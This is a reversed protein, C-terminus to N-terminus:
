QSEQERVSISKIKDGKAISNVVDMGNIVGGFISYQGDLSSQPALTIYFQCSATDINKPFHAMAVVGAVNHKLSPSTELALLRVQGNPEIYVGSGNGHPDGGQICFGPVVRHFSSNNYFGTGAIDVFNAVTRPALKRFLRIVITGKDTEITALPDPKQPDVTPPTPGSSPSKLSALPQAAQGTGPQSGTEGAAPQSPSNNTAASGSNSAPSIPTITGTPLTIDPPLLDPDIKENAFGPIANTQLLLSTVVLCSFFRRALM